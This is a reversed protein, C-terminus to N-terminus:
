DNQMRFSLAELIHGRGILESADLDACSRAVKLIKNCARQSLKFRSLALNLAEQAQADLVCFRKLDEDKLKGNFERQGRKKGFIFAELVRESMQGSSLSPGDEMRSEDMAVYLDVRDLIAASIRNKYRKVELETCTCSLNQSFLNGCPCPNQAAAFIFKTQYTIKSNVRSIQIKHDELPERLSEIITKSFHPFEDFFLVGGNALAVEGIKANVTGGGFISARTSSHHPHRFPRRQTLECDKADLSLYANQLLIEDLNQPPMIDVLRKACMSKGSGPSGEFLINHMGLAAILCARKAREQGKVDIFDLEFETHPIFIEDGLHLPKAFLPHTKCFRFKEYNKEKFFEMAESLHSLAYIELNPIMSAKPAMTQPVLVRAKKCKTGLFLLLSFLEGTSKISGDLGLEGVVFFDELDENQLLILLAIALDFHSGKKPVGSPSLNITIKKAPLTFDCNLLTAKIREISEKIASNPLGVISLSPLGRTFVSEVDILDLTENFSVCQLKKM